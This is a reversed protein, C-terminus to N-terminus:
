KGNRRKSRLTRFSEYNSYVTCGIKEEFSSEAKDYAQPYNRSTPLNKEFEENFADFITRKKGAM